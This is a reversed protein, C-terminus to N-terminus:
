LAELEFHNAEQTVNLNLPRVLRRGDLLLAALRRCLLFHGKFVGVGSRGYGLRCLRWRLRHGGLGDRPRLGLNTAIVWAGTATTFLVLLTVACQASWKDPM